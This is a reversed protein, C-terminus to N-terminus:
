AVAAEEATTPEETETGDTTETATTAEGDGTTEGDDTAASGDSATTAADTTPEDASVIGGAHNREFTTNVTETDTANGLYLGIFGRRASVDRVTTGEADEVFLGFSTGSVSVDRVTANVTNRLYVGRNWDTVRLNAVTVNHLTKGSAAGIATTDSIGRGDVLHGGGRLVVDSAGIRICTESIYTFNGGGGGDTIDKSLRYVGPEDITVCGEIPEAGAASATGTWTEATLGVGVVTAVVVIATLGVARLDQSSM